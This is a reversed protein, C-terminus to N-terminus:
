IFSSYYTVWMGSVHQKYKTVASTNFTSLFSISMLAGCGNFMGSMNTVTTITDAISVYRLSSFNYFLSLFSTINGLQNLKVSELYTPIMKNGGANPFRNFSLSTCNPLAIAVDLWNPAMSTQYGTETGKWRIQFDLSTLNSGAQPSITLVATKYPL